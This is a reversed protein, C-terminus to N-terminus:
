GDGRASPHTAEIAKFPSIIKYTHEKGEPVTWSIGPELRITKGEIILEAEGELAYGVTEYNRAAAAKAEGDGPVENWMRLAIANGSILLKQGMSGTPAKSSEVTLQEKRVAEISM